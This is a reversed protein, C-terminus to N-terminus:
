DKCKMERREFLVWRTGQELGLPCLPLGFVAVGLLWQLKAKLQLSLCSVLYIIQITHCITTVSHLVVFQSFQPFKKPSPKQLRPFPWPLDWQPSWLTFSKALSVAMCIDPPLDDWASLDQPTQANWSSCPALWPSSLTLSPRSPHRAPLICFHHM